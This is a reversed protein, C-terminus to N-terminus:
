FGMYFTYGYAVMAFLPVLSWPVRKSAASVLAFAGWFFTLVCVSVAIKETVQLSFLKGLGSVLLDFLVNNWRTDLVLGTVQGREILQALWANYMHSALDGAAIRRHWFCPILVLASIALIKFYNRRVFLASIAFASSSTETKEPFPQSRAANANLTKIPSQLTLINRLNTCTRLATNM